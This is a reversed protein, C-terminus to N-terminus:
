EQVESEPVAECLEIIKGLVGAHQQHQPPSPFCSMEEKDLNKAKSNRGWEQLIHTCHPKLTCCWCTQMKLGLVQPKSGYTAIKLLESCAAAALTVLSEPTM